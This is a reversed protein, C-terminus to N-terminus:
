DGIAVHNGPSTADFHCERTGLRLLRPEDPLIRMSIDGYDIYGPM